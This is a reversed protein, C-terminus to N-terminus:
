NVDTFLCYLHTKQLVRDSVQGSKNPYMPPKMRWHKPDEGSRLAGLGHTWVSNQYRIVGYEVDSVEKELEKLWIDRVGKEKGKRLDCARSQRRLSEFNVRKWKRQSLEWSESLWSEQRSDRKRGKGVDGPCRSYKVTPFNGTDGEQMTICKRLEASGEEWRSWKRGMRGALM